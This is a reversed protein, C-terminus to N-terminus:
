SVHASLRASDPTNGTTDHPRTTSPTREKAAPPTTSASTNAPTSPMAPRLPYVTLTACTERRPTTHLRIRTNNDTTALNIAKASEQQWIQYTVVKREEMRVNQLSPRQRWSPVSRTGGAADPSRLTKESKKADRHQPSSHPARKTEKNRTPEACAHHIM